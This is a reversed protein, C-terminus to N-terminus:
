ARARADDEIPQAVSPRPASEAEYATRQYALWRTVAALAPGSRASHFLDFAHQAGPLEAYTVSSNSVARLDAVFARAQEVWALSDHTGHLVFVPPADARVQSRPSARHWGEGDHKRKTGMVMRRLFREMDNRVGERKMFDYVGYLPVCGALTTDVDEFGPQYEPQNPSLAALTSLHGGASGGTAVIFNPDM